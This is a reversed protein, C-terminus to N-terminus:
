RVSNIKLWISDIDVQVTRLMNQIIYILSENTKAKTEVTSVRETLNTIQDQVSYNGHQVIVYHYKAKWLKIEDNLVKTDNDYKTVLNNYENVKINYSGYLADYFYFLDNFCQEAFLLDSNGDLCNEHIAPDNIGYAIPMMSVFIVLPIVLRGM